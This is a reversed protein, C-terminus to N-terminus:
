RSDAYTIFHNLPKGNEDVLVFAEGFSSLALAKIGEAKPALEKLVQKVKEYIELPNLEVYGRKPFLLPYARAAAAIVEGKETIISAKCGSTGIDLGIYSM